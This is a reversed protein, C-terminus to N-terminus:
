AAAALAVRLQADRDPAEGDLKAALAADLARGVEPGEAIGAAILDTGSVDPRVDRWEGVWRDIWEAGALRRRLLEIPTQGRALALAESPRRPAKGPTAAVPGTLADILADDREVFDSWAPAALLDIARRVREAAGQDVGALGWRALLAAAQPAEAEAVILGLEAKVRDASVSTLDTDPILAATGSELDLGLRAAYRAARLARTPDEIFSREHLVRLIGAGLDERGGHPDILDRPEALPIAMANITFDRRALDEALTAPEVEPLAGPAPYSERRCRVVDIAQGDFVVSTTGFREHPVAEAGLLAAIRSEDAETALDVDIGVIGLLLDRVAGGVLWVREGALRERLNALDARAAFAAALDPELNERRANM